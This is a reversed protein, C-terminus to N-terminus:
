RLYRYLGVLGLVGGTTAIALGVDGGIILGVILGAGGVTMLAVNPGQRAAAQLASESGLEPASVYPGSESEVRVAVRSPALRPPELAEFVPSGPHVAVAFVTETPPSALHSQQASVHAPLSAIGAVFLGLFGTTRMLQRFM